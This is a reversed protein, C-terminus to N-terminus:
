APPDAAAGSGARPRELATHVAALFDDLRFPRRVDVDADSPPDFRFSLTVLAMHQCRPDSRVADLLDRGDCADVVVVDPLNTDSASRIAQRAAEVTPAPTVVHGEDRLAEVLADLLDLHHELVLVRGRM